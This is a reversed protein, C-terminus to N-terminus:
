GPEILVWRADSLDSPYASRSTMVGAYQLHAIAGYQATLTM